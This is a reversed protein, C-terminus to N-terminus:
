RLFFETVSSTLWPTLKFELFSKQRLAVKGDFMDMVGAVMLCLLALIFSRDNNSFVFHIGAFSFLMGVYTLIVTYNYVGLLHLHNKNM